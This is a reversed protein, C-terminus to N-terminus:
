YIFSLTASIWSRLTDLSFKNAYSIVAFPLSLFFSPIQKLFTLFRAFSQRHTIKSRESSVVALTNQTPQHGRTKRFFMIWDSITTQIPIDSIRNFCPLPPLTVSLARFILVVCLRAEAPPHFSCIMLPWFGSIPEWLSM